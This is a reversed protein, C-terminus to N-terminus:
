RARSVTTSPTTAYGFAAFDAAYIERARQVAADTWEERGPRDSANLHPLPADVGMRRCVEAFDDALREYRGVFEPGIRGAADGVYYMQPRFHIWSNALAPTLQREVFRSFDLESDLNREAWRRDSASMGGARLFRWASELRDFPDRVFTFVFYAELGAGFIQEYDRFTAHGGAGNEFLTRSVSVGAVKPVHVFVAKTRVLPALSHHPVQKAWLHRAPRETTRVLIPVRL